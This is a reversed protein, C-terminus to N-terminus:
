YYETLSLSTKYSFNYNNLEHITTEAAAALGVSKLAFLEAYRIPIVLTGIIVDARWDSAM